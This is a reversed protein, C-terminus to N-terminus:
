VDTAPPTPDVTLPTPHVQFQVSDKLHVIINQHPYPKDEGCCNKYKKGSNCPCRANRSIPLDVRRYRTEDVSEISFIRFEDLNLDKFKRIVEFYKGEDVNGSTITCRKDAPNEVISVEDVKSVRTIIEVALEGWYLQGKIHTCKAGNMPQKCISCESESVILGSSAFLKYPYLSEYSNLLERIKTLDYRNQIETHLGILRILDLCDQLICWSQRFEMNGYYQFYDAIKCLLLLYKKGVYQANALMEDNSQKAFQLILDFLCTAESIEKYPNAFNHSQLLEKKLNILEIAKSVYGNANQNFFHKLM